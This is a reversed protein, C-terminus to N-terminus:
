HSHRQNLNAGCTCKQGGRKRRKEDELERQLALIRDREQERPTKGKWFEGNYRQEYICMFCVWPEEEHPLLLGPKASCAGMGDIEVIEELNDFQRERRERSWKPLVVNYLFKEVKTRPIPEAFQPVEKKPKVEEKPKVQQVAKPSAPVPPHIKQVAPSTPELTAPKVVPSKPPSKAKEANKTVNTMYKLLHQTFKSTETTEAPDIGRAYADLGKLLDELNEVSLPPMPGVFNPPLRNSWGNEVLNKRLEEILGQTTAASPADLSVTGLPISLVKKLDKSLEESALVYSEEEPKELQFKFSKNTEQHSTLTESFKPDLQTPPYFDDQTHPGSPVQKNRLAARAEPSSLLEPYKGGRRKPLPKVPKGEDDVDSVEFANRPPTSPEGVDVADLDHIVAGDAAFRVQGLQKIVSDLDEPEKWELVVQNEGDL